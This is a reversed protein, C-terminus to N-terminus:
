QCEHGTENSRLDRLRSGLLACNQQFHSSQELFQLDEADPNRSLTIRRKAEDYARVLVETALLEGMFILPNADWANPMRKFAKKLIAKTFHEAISGTLQRYLWQDSSLGNSSAVVGPLLSPSTAFYANEANNVISGFALYQQTEQARSYAAASRTLEVIEDSTAGLSRVRDIGTLYQYALTLDGRSKTAAAKTKLFEKLLPVHNNPVVFVDSNGDRAMDRAYDYPRGQEHFIVNATLPENRGHAWSYADAHNSPSSRFYGWGRNREIFVAAAMQEQLSSRMSEYDRHILTRTTNSGLHVLAPNQRRLSDQLLEVEYPQVHALAPRDQPSVTSRAIAETALLSYAVLLFCRGLRATM